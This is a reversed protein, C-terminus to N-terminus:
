LKSAQMRLHGNSKAVSMVFDFKDLQLCYDLDIEPYDIMNPNLFYRGPISNKVRDLYKEPDVGEDLLCAQLYDACAQDEDGWGGPRKGTSVFSINAPSWEKIKNVVAGATCFGTTILQDASRSRIVGQTGSTTRQILPIGSLDLGDFQNPSNGFDFGEVPIGDVEGMIKSYSINRKLTFADEVSSVLYIEEVGAAFAYAATSFARLVDIVVVLGTASECNRLDFHHFNLKEAQQPVL